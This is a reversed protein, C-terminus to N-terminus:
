AVAGTVGGERDAELQACRSLARGLPPVAAPCFAPAPLAPSNFSVVSGRRSGPVLGRPGCKVRLRARPARTGVGARGRGGARSVRLGVECMHM